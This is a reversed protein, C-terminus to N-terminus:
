FVRDNEEEMKELQLVIRNWFPDTKRMEEAQQYMETRSPFNKRQEKIIGVLYNSRQEFSDILDTHYPMAKRYLNWNPKDNLVKDFETESIRELQEVVTEFKLIENRIKENQIKGVLERRLVKFEKWEEPTLTLM